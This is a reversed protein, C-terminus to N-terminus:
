NISKCLTIIKRVIFKHPLLLAPTDTSMTYLKSGLALEEM